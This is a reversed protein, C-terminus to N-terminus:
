LSLMGLKRATKIRRAVMRQSKVSLKTFRPALIRGYETLCQSLGTNLSHVGRGLPADELRSLDSRKCEAFIEYRLAHAYYRMKNRVNLASTSRGTWCLSLVTCSVCGKIKYMLDRACHEIKYVEGEGIVDKVTQVVEDIEGQPVGPRMLVVLNYYANPKSSARLSVVNVSFTVTGIAYFCRQM